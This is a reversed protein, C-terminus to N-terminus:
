GAAECGFSSFYYTGTWGLEKMGPESSYYAKQIWDKLHQFHDQLLRSLPAAQFASVAPPAATSNEVHEARQSSSAAELVANQRAESLRVFAAGFRDISAADMAALSGVFREQNQRTTVSLLLDVFETVRADKSGPIIQESLVSLTRVQHPDLFHPKWAASAPGHNASKAEDPAHAAPSHASAVAPIVVASAAGGLLRHVLERRNM